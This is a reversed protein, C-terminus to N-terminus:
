GKTRAIQIASLSWVTEPPLWPQAPSSLKAQASSLESKRRARVLVRIKAKPESIMLIIRPVQRAKRSIRLKRPRRSARESTIM